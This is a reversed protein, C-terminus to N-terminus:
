DAFRISEITWPKSNSAELMLCSAGGGTRTSGAAGPNVVWPDSDDDVVMRHTHGYVVVRATPHADRLSQHDPAISGHRDGHEIAINGGPLEIEARKPIAQLRSTQTAPWLVPHDNNGTVAIVRGTRPQMADLVQGDGIDGAHIAIDAQRVVDAVREDLMSHTDSIIAVLVSGSNNQYM